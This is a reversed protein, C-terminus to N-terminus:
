SGLPLGRPQTLAVTGIVCCSDAGLGNFKERLLIDDSTCYKSEREDYARTTSGRGAIVRAKANSCHRIEGSLPASVALHLEPVSCPQVCSSSRLVPVTLFLTVTLANHFAPICFQNVAHTNKRREFALSIVSPEAVPIRCALCDYAGETHTMTRSSYRLRM